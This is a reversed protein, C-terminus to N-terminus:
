QPFRFFLTGDPAELIEMLDGKGVAKFTQSCEAPQRRGCVEECWGQKAAMACYARRSLGPATRQPILACGDLSLALLVLIAKRIMSRGTRVGAARPEPSHNSEKM